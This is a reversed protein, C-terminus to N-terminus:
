RPPPPGPPRPSRSPAPIAGEEIQRRCLALAKRMYGRWLANTILWVVPAVLLSRPSFAYRWRVRTVNPSAHEAFWWEGSASTALLRLAGSFGSVTYGFYSPYEYRTLRENASSGDSLRVIRTQGAADWAGTQHETGSVAPLPGYGTFISALDIPVIHEFVAAQTAAIEAEVTAAFLRV